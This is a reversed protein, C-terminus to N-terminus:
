GTTQLQNVLELVASVDIPIRLQIGAPVLMDTMNNALAIVWWLTVDGYTNYAITDLRDGYKTTM